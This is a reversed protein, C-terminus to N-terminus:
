DRKVRAVGTAELMPTPALFEQGWFLNEARAVVIEPALYPAAGGPTATELPSAVTAM